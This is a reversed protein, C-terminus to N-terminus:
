LPIAERLVHRRFRECMGAESILDVKVGLLDQLDMLLAGHDLLSRRPEFRAILDVDSVATAEGRALSGFLRFASAGHRKGLAIIDDRRAQIDRMTVM